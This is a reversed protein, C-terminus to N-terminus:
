MARARAKIFNSAASISRPGAWSTASSSRTSRSTEPASNTRMLDTVTMPTNNLPTIAGAYVLLVQHLGATIKNKENFADKEGSQPDVFVWERTIGYNAAKPYPNWDEWVVDSAMFDVGLLRWLGTIDGKPQPQQRGFMGMMGGPAQKPANTGPTDSMVPLPDEFIATPQGAAVAAIFNDMQQPNWSSPQVALLADYQETIPNSPDVPTVEYQKQLEEILMQNPTSQMTSPDFGGFMRADTQLVGIKKRRPQSATCISRVLEYEVPLGRDFFPVVVKELGCTFAVGLFIGEDARGRPLRTMVPRPTIGFQQEARTAEETFPEMNDHIVVDLKSGGLAQFERLMALLNLRTAVYDEPFDRSVSLFAEVHVPHKPDLDAILKRTDPSLSNLRDTSADARLTDHRSLFVNVSVVAVILAVLAGSLAM